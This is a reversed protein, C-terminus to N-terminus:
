RVYFSFDIGTDNKVYELVDHVNEKTFDGNPEDGTTQQIVTITVNNKNIEINEINADADMALPEGFLNQIHDQKSKKTYWKFDNPMEITVLYQNDM